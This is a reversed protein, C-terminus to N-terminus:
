CSLRYILGLRRILRTPPLLLSSSNSSYRLNPFSFSLLFFLFFTLQCWCLLNILLLLERRPIFFCFLSFFCPAPAWRIVKADRGYVGRTFYERSQVQRPRGRSRYSEQEVAEKREGERSPFSELLSLDRSSSYGSLSSSLFRLYSRRSHHLWRNVQNNNRAPRLATELESSFFLLPYPQHNGIEKEKKKNKEESWEAIQHHHHSSPSSSTSDSSVVKGKRSRYPVTM